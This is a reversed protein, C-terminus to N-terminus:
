ANKPADCFARFVEDSVAAPIECGASLMFRTGEALRLREIAQERCQDPTAQLLDTVPNLNGKYCKGATTYIDRARAFDVMHDVNFLDCGSPAMDELLYSTNGCIHLKILGGAEHVAAAVQREYPLAFERYMTPSILSATADGAGIMSAGAEVQPLAFDIVIGTLFDLIKHALLPELVLMLMFESLGCASCAEAFPMDVWGVVLCEDGAARSLEGVAAVRDAMRSGPHAPDPRPLRALGAEDTILPKLAYPPKSEPFAMEAGLDATIRFADSCATVADLGFQERVQLQARALASGNTAYERYSIGARDAALLMLLPFVPVRDIPEGRIAALCREKSNM